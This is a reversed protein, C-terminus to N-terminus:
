LDVIATKEIEPSLTDIHRPLAMISFLYSALGVQVGDIILLLSFFLVRARNLAGFGSSVWEFVVEGAIVCGALALTASSLFAKEFTFWRYLRAVFEDHRLGSLHGYSKALLGITLIQVGVINLLGAVIMFHLDISRGRIVMPGFAIPLALLLGLLCFVAGPLLLLLTPSHLVLFRLHRWGDRVSQLKSDGVRPHYVIDRQAIVVGAHIAQVVMESAFEMGTTVCRLGQYADRSIARLGCHVDRVRRDHFMLRLLGSLIPNGIYRHHAPMAGPLINDMRNGIVFDAEGDLIPQVLDGLKTFDYTLDGDGMVLIEHRAEAFGKRLASGYGRHTERLVRAGRQKAIEASRDTSGNDVVIVEGGSGLAAIGARAADIVQGISAEENLCPIVVSIGPPRTGNGKTPLEERM